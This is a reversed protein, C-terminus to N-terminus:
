SRQEHKVFPCSWRRCTTPACWGCWASCWVSSTRHSHLLMKQWLPLLGFGLLDPYPFTLSINTISHRTSVRCIETKYKPHRAVKRLEDEGHAFQCKAGYRCTGKEEWSRCLETKYLGLKRNNASPGNGNPGNMDDSGYGTYQPQLRNAMAQAAALDAGRGYADQAGPYFQNGYMPMAQPPPPAMTPPYIGPGPPGFAQMNGSLLALTAADRMASPDSASHHHNPRFVNHQQQVRAVAPHHNDPHMSANMMDYLQQANGLSLHPTHHGGPYGPLPAPTPVIGQPTFGRPPQRYPLGGSLANPRAGAFQPPVGGGNGQQQQSLPSYNRQQGHYDALDEQHAINSSPSSGSRPDYQSRPFVTSNTLSPYTPQESSDRFPVAPWQQHQPTTDELRMVPSEGAQQLRRLDATSLGGSFSHPREKAEGGTNVKLQAHLNQNRSLVSEHISSTTDASSGRSHTVGTQHDSPHPSSDASADSSTELPSADSLHVVAANSRKSKPPTVIQGHVTDGLDGAVEGIKLRVIEDALDWEAPAAESDVFQGNGNFRWRNNNLAGNSHVSSPEMQSSDSESSPTRTPM